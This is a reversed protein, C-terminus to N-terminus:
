EEGGNAAAMMKRLGNLGKINHPRLHLRGRKLLQFALPIQSFARWPCTHLYYDLLLEPEASRGHRKVSAVFARAMATNAADKPRIGRAIGLRKLEYMIDTFPISAPCRVACMYCSACLWVTNSKMVEELKGARLMAIIERPSYDMAESSPCSATCTGCQLCQRIKEGKPIARLHQWFEAILEDKQAPAAEM